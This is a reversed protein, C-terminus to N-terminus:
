AAVRKTRSRKLKAKVEPRQMAQKTKISILRKQKDTLPKRKGYRACTKPDKLGTKYAHLTNESYTVWELNSIDNNLKNGDVHNVIPKNHANEIFATAILRHIAIAKPKNNKQMTVYLYGQMLHPKLMTEGVFARGRLKPLSMVRGYNSIKYLGEYGPIDRWVEIKILENM